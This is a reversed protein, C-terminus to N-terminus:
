AARPETALRILEDVADDGGTGIISGFRDRLGRRLLDQAAPSLGVAAGQITEALALYLAADDNIAIVNSGPHPAKPPPSSVASSMSM